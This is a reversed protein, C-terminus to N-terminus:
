SVTQPWVGLPALVPKRLCSTSVRFTEDAAAYDFTSVHRGSIKPASWEFFTRAVWQGLNRARYCFRHTPDPAHRHATSQSDKRQANVMALGILCLPRVLSSDSKEMSPAAGLGGSNIAKPGSHSTADQGPPLPLAGEPLPIKLAHPRDIRHPEPQHRLRLASRRGRWQRAASAHHLRSDRPLFGFGTGAM